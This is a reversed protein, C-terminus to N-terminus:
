QCAEYPLKMIVTCKRGNVAYKVTVSLTNDTPRPLSLATSFGLSIGPTTSKPATNFPPVATTQGLVSLSIVNLICASKNVIDFKYVYKNATKSAPLCQIKGSIDFVNKDCNCTVTNCEPKVTIDIRRSCNGDRGATSKSYAMLVVTYTKSCDNFAYTIRNVAGASEYIKNGHEDAIYISYSSRCNQKSELLPITFTVAESQKPRLEMRRSLTIGVRGYVAKTALMFDDSVPNAFCYCVRSDPSQATAQTTFFLFLLVLLSLKKPLM